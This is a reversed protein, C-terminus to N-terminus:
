RHAAHQMNRAELEARMGDLVPQWTTRIASSAPFLLLGETYFSLCRRLQDTTLDSHHNM